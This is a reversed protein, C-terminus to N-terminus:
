YDVERFFHNMIRRGLFIFPVFIVSCLLGFAALQPVQQQNSYNGFLYMAVTGTNFNGEASGMLFYAQLYITLVTNMGVTFLTVITPWVLPIVVKTMEQTFNIGELRGVEVLEQPIRAMAGSLLVVNYWIPPNQIGMFRLLANVYGFTDFGLRFAMTLVVVPLISPLFYIVKFFNKGPLDKYLFYSCVVSLPLTIGCTVPVYLASNWLISSYREDHLFRDIWMKYNYFIDNPIQYDNVVPNYRTFSLAITQSNIYVWTILFHIVPYALLVCIFVVAGVSLNYRRRIKHEKGKTKEM